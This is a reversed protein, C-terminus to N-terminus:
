VVAPAHSASAKSRKRRAKSRKEADLKAKMETHSVSLVKRLARSFRRYEPTEPERKMRPMIDRGSKLPKTYMRELEYMTFLLVLLTKQIKYNFQNALSM